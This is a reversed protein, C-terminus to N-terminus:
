HCCAADKQRGFQADPPRREGAEVLRRAPNEAEISVVNDHQLPPEEYFAEGAAGGGTEDITDTM